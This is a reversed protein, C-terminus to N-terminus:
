QNIDYAKPLKLYQSCSSVSKICMAASYFNINVTVAM